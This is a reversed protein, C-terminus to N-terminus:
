LYSSSLVKTNTNTSLLINDLTKAMISSLTIDRFNTSDNMSRRRKKTIPVITGLLMSKPIFGHNIISRVLLLLYINPKATSNIFHYSM